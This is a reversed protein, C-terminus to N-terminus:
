FIDIYAAGPTPWHRKLMAHIRKVWKDEKAANQGFHGGGRHFTEVRFLIGEINDGGFTDSIFVIGGDTVRIQRDISDDVSAIFKCVNELTVQKPDNLNITM